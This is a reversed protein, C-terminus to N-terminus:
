GTSEGKGMMFVRLGMVWCLAAVSGALVDSPYHVQLYLRSACVLLVLAFLMPAAWIWEHPRVRVLILLMAVAFATSQMAHGSPFSFWSGVPVLAPFLGPRPRLALHKVLRAIVAAGILAGVLFRAEIRKGQRWLLVGALMVLPFLVILSGLWTLSQFATDLWPSRMANALNLGERDAWLMDTRYAGFGEVPVALIAAAALWWWGAQM